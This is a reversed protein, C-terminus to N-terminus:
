SVQIKTVPSAQLSNPFKIKLVGNEYSATINATDLGKPLKVKREIVGEFREKMVFRGTNGYLKRDVQIHLIDDPWMNINMANKDAGPLDVYVMTYTEMERIDVPFLNRGGGGGVGGGTKVPPHFTKALTEWDVGDALEGSLAPKLVNELLEQLLMDM